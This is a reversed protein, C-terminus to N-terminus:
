HRPSGASDQRFWVHLPWGQAGRLSEAGTGGRAVRRRPTLLGESWHVWHLRDSGGKRNGPIEQRTAGLTTQPICADKKRTKRGSSGNSCSGAAEPELFCLCRVNTSAPSPCLIPQGRCSCLAHSPTQLAWPPARSFVPDWPVKSGARWWNGEVKQLPVGLFRLIKNIIKKYQSHRTKM